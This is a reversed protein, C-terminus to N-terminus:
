GRTRPKTMSSRDPGKARKGGSKLGSTKTIKKRSGPQPKTKSYGEAHRDYSPSAKNGTKLGSGPKSKSSYGSKKKDLQQGHEPRSPRGSNRGAEASGSREIKKGTSTKENFRSSITNSKSGNRYKKRRGDTGSVGDFESRSFGTRQEKYSKVAAPKTKIKKTELSARITRKKHVAGNILKVAREAELSDTMEAFAYGKAQNFKISVVSGAKSLATKLESETTEFSLNGIFLRKSKKM